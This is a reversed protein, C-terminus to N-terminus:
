IDGINGQNCRLMDKRATDDEFIKRVQFHKRKKTRVKKKKDEAKREM